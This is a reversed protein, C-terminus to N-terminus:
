VRFSLLFFGKNLLDQRFTRPPWGLGALRNVFGYNQERSSFQLRRLDFGQTALLEQVPLPLLPPVSGSPLAPHFATPLHGTPGGWPQVQKSSEFITLGPTMQSFTRLGM